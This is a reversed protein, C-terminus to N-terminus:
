YYKVKVNIHVTSYSSREVFIDGGSIKVNGFTTQWYFNKVTVPSITRKIAGKLQKNSEKRHAWDIFLSMAWNVFNNM